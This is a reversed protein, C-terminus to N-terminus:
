IQLKLNFDAEKELNFILDSLKLNSAWEKELGFIMDPNIKLIEM